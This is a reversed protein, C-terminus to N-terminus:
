IENKVRSFYIRPFHMEDDLSAKGIKVPKDPYPNATNGSTNDYVLETIVKAGPKLIINKFRYFTQLKFVFYPLDAVLIPEAKADDGNPNQVYIRASAGRYHMHILARELRMPEKIPAESRIVVTKEPAITLATPVLTFQEILKVSPKNKHFYVSFRSDVVEEKGTSELHLIVALYSGKPVRVGEGSESISFRIPRSFTAAIPQDLRIGDIRRGNSTMQVKQAISEGYIRKFVLAASADGNELVRAQSDSFPRPLVIMHAHHVATMPSEMVVARVVKEEPFADSLMVYKYLLDGTPKVHIPSKLRLELDPKGLNRKANLEQDDLEKKYAAVYIDSLTEPLQNFDRSELFFRYVLQRDRLTYGLVSEGHPNPEFSSPMRGVEITKRSMAQWGVVEKLNKFYDLSPSYSHCRVCANMFPRVFREEFNKATYESTLGRHPEERCDSKKGNFLESATGTGILRGDKPEISFFDGPSALKMRISLIQLSDWLLLTKRKELLWRRSYAERDVDLGSEVLVYTSDKKDGQKEIWDIVSTSECKESISVFTVSKFKKFSSISYSRGDIAPLRFDLESRGLEMEKQRKEAEIARDDSVPHGLAIDFTLVTSILALTYVFM